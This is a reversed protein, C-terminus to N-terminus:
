THSWSFHTGLHGWFILVLTNVTSAEDYGLSFDEQTSVVPLQVARCRREVSPGLSLASSHGSDGPWGCASSCFAVRIGCRLLGGLCPEFRAVPAWSRAPM